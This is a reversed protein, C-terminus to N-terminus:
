MRRQGLLRWTFVGTAAAGGVTFGLNCQNSVAKAAALTAYGLQSWLPQFYSGIGIASMLTKQSAANTAYAADLAAPYTIDGFSITTSAGLAANSAFCEYPDLMTEWGLTDAHIITGIAAAALTITDCVLVGQSTRSFSKDSPIPPTANQPTGVLSGYLTAM